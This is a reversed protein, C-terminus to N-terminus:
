RQDIRRLLEMLPEPSGEDKLRLGLSDAAICGRRDFVRWPHGSDMGYTGEFDVEPTDQLLPLGREGVMKRLRKQRDKKLLVLCAVDSFEERSAFVQQYDDM